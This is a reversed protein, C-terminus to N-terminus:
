AHGRVILAPHANPVAVLKNEKELSLLSKCLQGPPRIATCKQHGWETIATTRRKVSQKIKSGLILLLRSSPRQHTTSSPWSFRDILDARKTGQHLLFTTQSYILADNSMYAPSTGVPERPRAKNGHALGNM